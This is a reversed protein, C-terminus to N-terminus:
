EKPLGGRLVPRGEVFWFLAADAHLLFLHLSPLGTKDDGEEYAPRISKRLVLYRRGVEGLCCRRVSLSVLSLM